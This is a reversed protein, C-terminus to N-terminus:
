PQNLYHRSIINIATQQQHLIDFRNDAGALTFGNSENLNINSYYVANIDKTYTGEM